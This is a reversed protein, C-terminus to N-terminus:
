STSIRLVGQPPDQEGLNQSCDELPHECFERAEYECFEKSTEALRM